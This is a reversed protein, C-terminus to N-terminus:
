NRAARTKLRAIVQATIAREMAQVWVQADVAAELEKQRQQERESM